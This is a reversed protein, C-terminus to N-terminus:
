GRKKRVAKDVCNILFSKNLEYNQFSPPGLNLSQVQLPCEQQWLGQLSGLSELSQKTLSALSLHRVGLGYISQDVLGYMSEVM